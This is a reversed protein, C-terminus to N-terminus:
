RAGHLSRSRSPTTGRFLHIGLYQRRPPVDAGPLEPALRHRQSVALSAYRLEDFRRARSYGNQLRLEGVRLPPLGELLSVKGPSPVPCRAAANPCWGVSMLVM